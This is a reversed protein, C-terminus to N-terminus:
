LIGQDVLDKYVKASMVNGSEDEMEIGDDRAREIKRKEEEMKEHLAVADAIKDIQYFLASGGSIGLCRLGHVHKAENFHRDFAKRGMYVHNGCIECQFENGLGHLRYLWYPIPKGDWGLPLKLPNYTKDLDDSDSDEGDQEDGNNTDKRKSSLITLHQTNVQEELWEKDTLTKKRDANEKTANKVKAFKLGLKSILWEKRAIEKKTNQDTAGNTAAGSAKAGNTTAPDQAKAAGAKHKKSNLHGDYVTQKSYQKQCIDCWIGESITDGNAVGTAQAQDVQWQKEFDANLEALVKDHNDMAITRRYFSVLYDLLHTLYLAYNPGQKVHVSLSSADFSDFIELYRKYSQDTSNRKLNLFEAHLTNLDLFRGYSEEGSFLKAIRDEPDVPLNPDPLQIELQRAFDEVANDPYRQHFDKIVTLLEYLADLGGGASMQAVENARTQDPDTYLEQLARSRVQIMELMEAMEHDLQLRDRITRPYALLRDSIAAELREIEEHAHRQKELITEM